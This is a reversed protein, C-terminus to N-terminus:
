RCASGNRRHSASHDFVGDVGRNLDGDRAETEGTTAVLGPSIEKVRTNTEKKQAEVGVHCREYTPTVKMLLWFSGTGM